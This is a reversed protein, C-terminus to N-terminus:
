HQNKLLYEEVVCWGFFSRLVRLENDQTVTSVGDAIARKALYLRIDNTKMLEVPTSVEDFFHELTLRYYMITRDTCGEVKKSVLFAKLIDINTNNYPVIDTCAPSVTYDEMAILLCARISDLETKEFKDYILGIFKNMMEEKM